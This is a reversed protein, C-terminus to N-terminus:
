AKREAWKKKQYGILRQPLGTRVFIERQTHGEDLLRHITHVTPMNVERPRAQGIERQPAFERADIQKWQDRTIM